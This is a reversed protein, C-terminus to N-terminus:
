STHGASPTASPASTGGASPASSSPASTSPVGVDVVRDATLSGSGTGLVGVDDGAKVTGISSTTGKAQGKVHVKTSPTVAFTASVGDAARATVSTPSVATVTGRIADWTTDVGAKSRTVWQAHLAHTLVHRAGRHHTGATAAPTGSATPAPSSSSGTTEALAVGGGTLVALAAAAAITTRTTTRM